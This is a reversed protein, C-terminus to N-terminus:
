PIYTTKMNFMKHALQDTIIIGNKILNETNDIWTVMNQIIQLIKM